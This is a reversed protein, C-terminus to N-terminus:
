GVGLERSVTSVRTREARAAPSSSEAPATPKLPEAPGGGGGHPNEIHEVIADVLKHGAGRAMRDAMQQDAMQQFAEGGRGGDMLKSKFPSSRMQKFVQGFFTQAVWKQTQEVLQAHKQDGTPKAAPHPFNMKFKRHQAAHPTPQGRHSARVPVGNIYSSVM